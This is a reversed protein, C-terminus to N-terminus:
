LCSELFDDLNQQLTDLTKVAESSARSQVPACRMRSINDAIVNLRDDVTEVVSGTDPVLGVVEQVLPGTDECAGCAATVLPAEYAPGPVRVPVCSPIDGVVVCDEYLTGGTPSVDARCVKVTTDTGTCSAWAPVSPGIAGALVAAVAAARITKM